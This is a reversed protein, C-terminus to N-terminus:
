YKIKSMRQAAYSQEADWNYSDELVTEPYMVPQFNAPMEFPFTAIEYLGVGFRQVAKKTGRFVGATMGVGPSINQWDRGAEKPIEAWFTTTNTVGRMLKRGSSAAVSEKYYPGEAAVAAFAASMVVACLALRISKRM